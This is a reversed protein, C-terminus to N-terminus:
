LENNTLFSFRSPTLVYVNNVARDRAIRRMNKRCILFFLHVM